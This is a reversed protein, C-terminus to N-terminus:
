VIHESEADLSSTAEDFILISPKKMLARAIAVRQKQGGSLRMGKSGVLTKLGDPFRKEDFVFESVGSVDCIQKLEEQTYKDDEEDLCGYTINYEIDNDFLSPEQQVLGISRKLQTLPIDKVNKGDFLVNGQSVDYFREILSVITSKGSGSM